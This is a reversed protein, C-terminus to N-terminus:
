KIKYKLLEEKNEKSVRFSDRCKQIGKNIIFKNTKNEKFYKFTDKEKKIFCECLLWAGMMNVYYHEEKNLKDLLHFIKEIYGDILIYEFLIYYGIRKVFPLDSNIYDLALEYYEKEKGKINFKLTDCTAWNDAKKSYIDLYKKKLEFDKIKNILFGNIITNEYYEWIMLDLFDIYNGKYIENVIEKMEKTKISLIPLNTKLLNTSWEKKSIDEFKELYKQFEKVDKENWIEKNLKM